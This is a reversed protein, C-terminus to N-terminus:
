TVQIKSDTLSCKAALNERTTQDPYHCKQFIRELEELQQTSFTTRCRRKKAPLVKEEQATNDDGGSSGADDLNGMEPTESDPFFDHM